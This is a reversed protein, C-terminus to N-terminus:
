SGEGERSPPSGTRKEEKGRTYPTPAWQIVIALIIVLFYLGALLEGLILTHEWPTEPNVTADGLTTITVASAYIALFVGTSWKMWAAHLVSFALILNIFAFFTLIISRLRGKPWRTVLTISMNVLLSDLIWWVALLSLLTRVVPHSIYSALAAGVLL